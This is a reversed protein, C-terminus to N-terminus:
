SGTWGPALPLGAKTSFLPKRSELSEQDSRVGFRSIQAQPKGTAQHLLEILDAEMPTNGIEQPSSIGSKRELCLKGQMVYVDVSHHDHM